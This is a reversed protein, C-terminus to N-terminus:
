PLAALDTLLRRAWRVVKRADSAIDPYSADYDARRRRKRLQQGLNAIRREARDPSARFRDWVITHAAAQPIRIGSRALHDRAMGLAAYYARGIATRLAAEDGTRQALEEAVDLFDSWDFM